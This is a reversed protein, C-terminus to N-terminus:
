GIKLNKNEVLEVGDVTKGKHERLFAKIANKDVSVTEEVKINKFADPVKSIDLVDLKSSKTFKMNVRTTEFKPIKNLLLFGKLYGLIWTAKREKAKKRKELSKIEEDLAKIEATLNKHWLGLNEIKDTITMQIENVVEALGDGELIEGTELDCQSEITEVLKENLEYLNM